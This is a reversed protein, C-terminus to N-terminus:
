ATVLVTFSLPPLEITVAGDVLPAGGLSRVAIADPQAFTNVAKPDTGAVQYIAAVREPAGNPWRITTALADAQGRNVLFVAGVGTALDYSASADLLPMEGFLTTEYMPSQVLADISQGAAYKSFLMIPYFITQKLLGETTTLIPAIVNVIQALCAIKLIDCRRLFVSLWQAVVLADELNYVEEILHPAEAWGGHMTKDKYWVNWEDWSLYVEHRSRLKAKVFRLTAALTDVHSEFQRALALFSGTDNQDNNAYYHLSLYDVDEWCTELAIRDWEPYTPIITNSSGCLVLKISPDQWKMMKAAELGKRAYEHAELHGIQWPGDMENGLCWYRVGYPERQGNAVRLDAYYSGPAGNCYEVLDAAAQITGTGLNVGLVPLTDIARCFAMFEDTGFQNTEISQWAMDRRRPRQERPGVGDLWNYGSLFNGGPYRVVRFNLERLAALVDRRFGREDAHPSGPEYIGQYICRGMHEAFGGFLLPSIDGIVRETDISVRATHTSSEPM